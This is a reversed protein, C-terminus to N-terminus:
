PAEYVEILGVGSTDGVGSVQVTYSGPQLTALIASDLSSTALPFAGVSVAAASITTGGVDNWNDNTTVISGERFLTMRPNALAGSVGFQALSPGIGRILVNVAVSGKVSFGAIMVNGATGVMARASVNKLRARTYAFNSDTDYIEVLTIGSAGNTDFVQASYGSNVLTSFLAADKSGNSFQFAGVANAVAVFGDGSWDNNSAMLRGGDYLSLVPDPLTGTLGFQNLSPGSARILLNAPITGESGLVFGVILTTSAAGATTRISLNAIRGPDSLRVVLTTAISTATGGVNSVFASYVGADAMRAASITYAANTANPIPIGDKRWQYSLPETGSVSVSFTTTEGEVVTRTGGQSSIAPAFVAGPATTISISELRVQNDFLPWWPVFGRNQMGIKNGGRETVQGSAIPTTLNNLYLTLREGDDVVRFDYYTNQAFTFNTIVSPRGTGLLLAVNRQGTQDGDDGGRRSFQVGVGSQFPYYPPIMTGDSRLAISLQDYTGGFFGFRGRVEIANPLDQKTILVGRQFFVAKGDSASMRSDSQPALVQWVSTNLTNFDDSLLLPNGPQVVLTSSGSTVSGAVNTVTVSYNGADEMKVPNLTLSSSTAAPITVGDKTWRYSFPATGSATVSFTVSEGAVVTRFGLQFEIAPRTPEPQPAESAYIQQVETDSLARNYVRVEDMSGAFFGFRLPGTGSFGYAATDQAVIVGNVYMKRSRTVSDFSGFVHVWRGYTRVFRADLDNFWFSFRASTDGYDLMLRFALGAQGVDGQAFGPAALPDKQDQYFWGGISFTTGALNVNTSGIASRDSFGIARNPQGFRDTALAAGTLQLTRSNGSADNTNGTFPFYAILGASLNQAHVFVPATLLLCAYLGRARSWITNM